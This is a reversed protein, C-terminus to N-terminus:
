DEEGEAEDEDPDFVPRVFLQKVYGRIQLGIEYLLELISENSDYNAADILTKITEDQIIHVNHRPRCTGLRAGKAIDLQHPIDKM